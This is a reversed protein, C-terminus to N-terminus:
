TEKDDNKIMLILCSWFERVWNLTVTDSKDKGIYENKCNKKLM